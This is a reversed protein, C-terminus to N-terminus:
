VCLAILKAKEGVLSEKENRFLNEMNEKELEALQAIREKERVV